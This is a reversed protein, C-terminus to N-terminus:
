VRVRADVVSVAACYAIALADAADDPRPIEKLSLLRKVMEQVQKKDAGGYGTVALKVQMPTYEAIGVGAERLALLSVGRAESVTMANTVNKQFFLKEVGAIAPQHASILDVLARHLFSLREAQAMTKPTELCGHALHTLRHGDKRVFGYGLRATGPDIGLVIM